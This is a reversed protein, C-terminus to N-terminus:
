PAARTPRPPNVPRGPAAATFGEGGDADYSARVVGTVEGRWAAAYPNYAQWEPVARFADYGDVGPFDVLTLDINVSDDTTPVYPAIADPVADWQYATVGPPVYVTWSFYSNTGGEGGDDPVYRSWYISAIGGDYPEAGIQPWVAVQGAGSASIEGIWPIEEVDVDVTTASATAPLLEYREQQGLNGSREMSVSTILNDSGSFVPRLMSIANDVPANGEGAGYTPLGALIPTVNLNVYNVQDILGHAGFTMDNPVTWTAGADITVNDGFAVDRLVIQRVPLYSPSAIQFLLLDAPDTQCGDYQSYTITTATNGYVINYGCPGYVYTYYTDTTNTFNITATAAAGSSDYNNNREGFTLHDGPKVGLVTVLDQDNPDEYVASVAAGPLVGTLTVNGTADSTGTDAVTGDPNIAVVTVGARVAPTYVGDFDRTYTTVTVDGAVVVEADVPSADSEPGADTFHTESTCGAAAFM